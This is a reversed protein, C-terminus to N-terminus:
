SLVQRCQDSTMFANSTQFCLQSLSLIYLKREYESRYLIKETESVANIFNQIQGLEVLVMATLNQDFLLASM